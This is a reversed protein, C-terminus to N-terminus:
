RSIIKEFDADINTENTFDWLTLSRVQYYYHWYYFMENIYKQRAEDKRSQSDNLDLTSIKGIMFTEVNTHYRRQAIRDAADALRLQEQQNNFHEVLIFIDQQFNMQEQRLRSRTVERNSKAVKVKGRRKGWDLLPIQFGIEVVQNDKLPDYAGRVTRDTGTLGVKAFLNIQRQNGKAKAVEYDAQLQRRRINKAFSNNKLAKDLM